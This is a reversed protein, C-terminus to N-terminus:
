GVFPPPQRALTSLASISLPCVDLQADSMDEALPAASHLNPM